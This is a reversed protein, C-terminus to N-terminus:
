FHYNLKSYFFRGNSGMQTADWYGGSDTDPSQTDPYNNFLNNIGIQYTIHKKVEYNIHIDTTIKPSYYDTAAKLRDQESNNFNVLDQHIQWDILTISSYRTFNIGTNIKDKQFELSLNFKNKPASSLIFHQERIGFFTEKDLNKNNIKKILMNNINGALSFLLTGLGINKKWSTKLDIGFTHTDVGNAFFQVNDVNFGLNSADFNGSLIIRDKINVFYTDIDINFNKLHFSLGFNTNFAEEEKLKEIGLRKTLPDNNAILLSETPTSGIYNTFTLNYYIQALSPARFGSSYSGRINLLPTIKIRFAFKSNLKSGFDSYYEYRFATTVLLKKTFDFEADTYFSFNNRSRDVENNPSYGPFGQAGGPRVTNNYTVLNSPLTNSTVINGYIDYAAYSAEEGAFIQYNELKHEVGFAINLSEFIQDYHRSFDIDITNQTLKHGGADFETPSNEQLTANLTEKIFYQFTNNGYTNNFDINWHRFSTKIGFSFSKDSITSTILPNFGKPYISLVNRESQPSRTFAFAETNRYNYGGFAYFSINNELTFGTNIFVNANKFAADGYKERLDTGARYTHEKSLFASSINIFGSKTIEAGYNVDFKYTLGDIKKSSFRNKIPSNVGYFGFSSNIDLVNTSDKLVINIVGAIADSGYQASAGDKLIEIRKIAATPITNLDTGSNGRGRTGYLNILSAQHRRKGNILVLTQDPGLGRLTTPTIHDAGDAGSQKSANFSPIAYQLLQNVETFGSKKNVKDIDVIDTSTVADKKTRNKNRSGVLFVEDLSEGDILIISLFSSSKPTIKKSQYGMFSVLIANNKHITLQFSGDLKSITGNKSGVVVISAGVLPTNYNSFIKGKVIIKQNTKKTYIVYYKNGLYDFELSTVKKLLSISQKLDLDKFAEKTVYKDKLLNSKYTFYVHYNSSIDDLFTHLPTKSSANNQASITSSIFTFLLAFLLQNFPPIKNQM